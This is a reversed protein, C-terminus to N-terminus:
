GLGPVPVPTQTQWEPEGPRPRMKNLEEIVIRRIDSLYIDGREDKLVVAIQGRLNDMEERDREEQAREQEVTMEPADTKWADYGPLPNTSMADAGSISQLLGPVRGM